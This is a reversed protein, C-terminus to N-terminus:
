NRDVIAVDVNLDGVRRFTPPSLLRSAVSRDRSAGMIVLDYEAASRELFEDIELTAVRTEIHGTFPEVLDSLMSEAKRRERETASGVCTAVSVFGTTGALRTAFEVMGHAVDSAGRVPVLIRNWETRQGETRHVLVDCDGQFLTRVFSSLQGDEVEYPSVVLDCNTRRATRLTTQGADPGGTAVIVECPVDTATEIEHARTELREVAEVVAEHDPVEEPLDVTDAEKPRGTAGHDELLTREAEALWEEAVLDLLVVKGARHPAALRAALM